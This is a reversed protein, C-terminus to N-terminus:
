QQNGVYYPPVKLWGRQQMLDKFTVGFTAKTLQYKMFMMGVDPRVAETFGRAASMIGIVLNYALLNATEEDTLKAGEPIDKYDSIPKEPTTPPLPVGEKRLFQEMGFEHEIIDKLKEKLEADQAINYAVEDTRLTQQTGTLYFWLNMVEGVHLPPKKGDLFPKIADKFVEFPNM